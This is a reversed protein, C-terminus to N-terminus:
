QELTVGGLLAVGQSGILAMKMWVVVTATSKVIILDAWIGM